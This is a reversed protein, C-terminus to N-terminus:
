ELLVLPYKEPNKVQGIGPVIHIWNERGEGDNDNVLLNFRFGTKLVDPTLGLVAFPITLQYSTKGSERRTELHAAAVAKEPSLGDPASWCFVESKGNDCRTLGLEWMGGRGPLAIAFQINDGQWVNAGSYAQFHRDDTVDVALTFNEQRRGLQVAASLDHPGKWNLHEKTPDAGILSFVQERQNLVFDPANTERKAPILVSANVPLELQCSWGAQQLNGTLQMTGRTGFPLKFQRTANGHFAIQRKEGPSLIIKQRANPFEIGTPAQLQFSFEGKEALPNFLSLRLTFEKGPVVAGALEAKMLDGALTLNEKAPVELATPFEGAELLLFGNQPHLAATNGMLDTREGASAGTHLLLAAPTANSERWCALLRKEENCFELLWIGAPAPLQRIFKQTRFLATLTNYAVYVPKPQFDRTLLGYNHEGNTPDFGDNRLDYWNFAIAGRSWAFLLKQWLSAAQPRIRGDVATLATETAYWPGTIGLKRRLPLFRGDIMRVYDEFTGHEHHAHVEFFGRTGALAKEIYDPGHSSAVQRMTAFGGTLRQAAPDAKRIEEAGARFLEAYDEAGFNYFAALDPENFQEYFRIKGKYHEAVNRIYERYLDTRPRIEGRIDLRPRVFGPKVAWSPPAGLLAELEIGYARCLNLAEDTKQFNWPSDPQPRLERWQIDYRLAKIGAWAALIVERKKEAETCRRWHSHVGFLFGPAIGRTPGSPTLAALYLEGSRKRGQRDSLQYRVRWWGRSPLPGFVLRGKHAPTLEFSGSRQFKKGYFDEFECLARCNVARNGIMEFSLAATAEQEPLIIAAPNDTELQVRVADLESRILEFDGAIATGAKVPQRFVVAFGALSIEGDIRGNRDGGWHADSGEPTITYEVRDSGAASIPRFQFIEGKSDAIRLRLEEVSDRQSLQLKLSLQAPLAGLLRPKSLVIEGFPANGNNWHFGIAPSGDPLTLKEVQHGREKAKVAFVNKEDLHLPTGLLAVTSGLLLFTSLFKM